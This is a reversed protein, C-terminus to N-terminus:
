GHGYLAYFLLWIWGAIQLSALVMAVIFRAKSRAVISGPKKRGKIAFWLAAPATIITPWVMICPFVALAMAINDYMVRKTELSKIKGKAFGSELCVPCLHQEKLEVDCLSCIFRGCSECVVTAKNAHHYFCAADDEMIATENRDTISTKRFFAPFLEAELKSKCGLCVESLGTNFIGSPLPARCKPCILLADM